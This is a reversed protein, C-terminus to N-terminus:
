RQVTIQPLTSSNNIESLVTVLGTVRNIRRLEELREHYVVVREIGKLTYLNGSSYTIGYYEICYVANRHPCYLVEHIM